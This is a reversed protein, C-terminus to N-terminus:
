LAEEPVAALLLWVRDEALERRSSQLINETGGSLTRFKMKCLPVLLRSCSRRILCRGTLSVLEDNQHKIEVSTGFLLSRYMLVCFM